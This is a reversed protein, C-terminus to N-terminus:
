EGLTFEHNAFKNSFYTLVDHGKLAKEKHYTFVIAGREDYCFVYFWKDNVKVMLNM